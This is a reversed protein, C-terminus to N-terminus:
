NMKRTLLLYVACRCSSGGLFTIRWIRQLIDLFSVDHLDQLFGM